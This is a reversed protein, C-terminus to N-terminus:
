KHAEPAPRAAPATATPAPTAESAPAMTQATTPPAAAGRSPLGREVTMKMAAEIPIRVVGASKDVWGYGALRQSAAARLLRLEEKPDVQLRPEPPLRNLNAEAMPYRRGAGAADRQNRLLPFAAWVILYSAITVAALGVGAKMIAGFEIGDEQHNGQALDHHAPAPTSAHPATHASSPHTSM